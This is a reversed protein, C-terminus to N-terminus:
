DGTVSSRRATAAVSTWHAQNNPDHSRSRSTLWLKAEIWFLFVLPLWLIWRMPTRLLSGLLPLVFAALWPMTTGLSVRLSLPLGRHLICYPICAALEAWGYGVIGANPVFVATGLILLLVHWLYCRTVVWQRGEVFLASAELAFISHILVGSAVFPFVMLASSWRGGLLKPLLPPGLLAILLFVPGLAFLQYRAGKQIMRQCREPDERLRALTAIAVRGVATRVFSLAEVARVGLAVYAVAETGLFRGVILPNVLNRLQWVRVSASFGLGFGIMRRARNWDVALRPSFGSVRQAAVLVYLQWIMHGAVPAWVGFGRWALIASVVFAALQGGFEIKAVDRFQLARELKALPPGALGILPVTLLLVLYPLAFSSESLWRTLLPLALRGLACLLISIAVILTFATDYDERVPAEETRVLHTDLGARTISALFTSIGVATVFAGYARPGIWWTLVLVNGANVLASGGYRAAIYAVGSQSLAITSVVPGPIGVQGIGSGKATNEAALPSLLPM